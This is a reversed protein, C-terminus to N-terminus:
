ARGETETRMATLLQRYTDNSERLVNMMMITSGFVQVSQLKNVHHGNGALTLM